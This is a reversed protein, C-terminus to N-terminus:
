CFKILHHRIFGNFNTFNGGFSRKRIIQTNRVIKIDLFSFSMQNEIEFTFCIHPHKTNM